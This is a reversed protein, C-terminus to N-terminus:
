KTHVSSTPPLPNHRYQANALEGVMSLLLCSSRVRRWCIQIHCIAWTQSVVRQLFSKLHNKKWSTKWDPCYALWSHHHLPPFTQLTAGNPLQTILQDLAKECILSGELFNRWMNKLNILIKKKKAWGDSQVPPDQPFAALSLHESSGDPIVRASFILPFLLFCFVFFNNTVYLTMYELVCSSYILLITVGLDLKETWDLFNAGRQHFDECNCVSEYKTYGEKEFVM